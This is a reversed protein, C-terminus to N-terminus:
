LSTGHFVRHCNHHCRLRGYTLVAHCPLLQCRASLIAHPSGFPLYELAPGGHRADVLINAPKIDGHIIRNDHLFALGTLADLLVSRVKPWQPQVPQAVYKDLSGYEYWPMQMYFMNAETGSGQFLATIEVIAHHRLRQAIAAEKLCTRLDASDNLTYQKIAYWTDGQRVRRHRRQVENDDYTNTQM